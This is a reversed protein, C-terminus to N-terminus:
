SGIKIGRQWKFNVRRLNIHYNVAAVNSEITKGVLKNRRLNQERHQELHQIKARIKRQRRELESCPGCSHALSLDSSSSTSMNAAVAVFM